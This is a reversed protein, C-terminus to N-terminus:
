VQFPISHFLVSGEMGNSDPKLLSSPEDVRFEAVM